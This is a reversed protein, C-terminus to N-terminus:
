SCSFFHLQIYVRRECVRVCVVLMGLTKKLSSFSFKVGSWLCYLLKLLSVTFSENEVVALRAFTMLLELMEFCIAFVHLVFRINIFCLKM